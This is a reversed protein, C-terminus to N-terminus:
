RRYIDYLYAFCGHHTIRQGYIYSHCGVPFVDTPDFLKKEDSLLSTEKRVQEPAVHFALYNVFQPELSSLANLLTSVIRPIFPKLASRSQKCISLLLKLSIKRADEFSIVIGQDLLFPLIAELAMKVTAKQTM